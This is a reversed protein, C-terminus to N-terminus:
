KHLDLVNKSFPKIKNVNKLKNKSKFHEDLFKDQL